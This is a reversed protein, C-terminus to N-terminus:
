KAKSTRTRRQKPAVPAPEAKEPEPAGVESLNPDPSKRLRAIVAEDDTELVGVRAGDRDEPTFVAWVRHEDQITLAPYRSHEFKAM